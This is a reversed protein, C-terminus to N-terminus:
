EIEDSIGHGGGGHAKRSSKGVPVVNPMNASPTRADFDGETDTHYYRGDKGRVM